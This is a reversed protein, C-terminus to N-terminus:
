LIIKFDQADVNEVSSFKEVKTVLYLEKIQDCISRKIKGPTGKLINFYLNLKLLNIAPSLSLQTCNSKYTFITDCLGLFKPSHTQCLNYQPYSQHRYIIQPITSRLRSFYLVLSYYYYIGKVPSSNMYFQLFVIGRPNM